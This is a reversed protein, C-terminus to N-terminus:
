RSSCTGFIAYESVSFDNRLGEESILFLFVGGFMAPNM